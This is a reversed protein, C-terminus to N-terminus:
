TRAQPRPSTFAPLLAPPGSLIQIIQRECEFFIFVNVKRRLACLARGLCAFKYCNSATLVSVYSKKFFRLGILVRFGFGLFM